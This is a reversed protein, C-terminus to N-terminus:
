CAARDPPSGEALSAYLLSKGESLGFGQAGLGGDVPLAHGTIYDAENSCLWTVIRAVEEPRGMRGQPIRALISDSSRQEVNKQMISAVMPTDIYGPCVANVRVGRGAVELAAAQTVGTVGYKAATYASSGPLPMMGAASSINVIAGGSNQTLLQRLEHKMCLWVGTLNVAILEHWEEEPYEILPKLRTASAGASNCAYDLRGFDSVVKSVMAEVESSQSVNCQFYGCARGNEEILACTEAAAASDIDCAMVAAGFESFSRAVARGIGSGAGTVLAVKGKMKM